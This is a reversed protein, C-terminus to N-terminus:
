SCKADAKAKAVRGKLPEGIKEGYVDTLEGYVKCAEAPKKLQTLAQGLYYLSDPAREGRPMKQYNTYFAEAAQAPKGEDLFSRGLLNQAYSARKHKPYKAVVERLAAEAEPYKKAEWLRYGAMYADEGADGTSPPGASASVPTEAAPTAKVPAPTSPGTTFPSGAGGAAPAAIAAPANGELAAIRAAHDAKVKAWDAELQRVKFGNEESQATLRALEKELADVRASLEEVAGVSPTGAAVPAVAPPAIEADFYDPNAGPFVKRQVARLQKEVKTVRGELAADQGLATGSTSALLLGAIVLKRM